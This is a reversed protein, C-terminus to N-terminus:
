VVSKRDLLDSSILAFDSSPDWPPDRSRINYQQLMYQAARSLVYAMIIVLAFPGLDMENLLAKNSLQDLTDTTQLRGEKWAKEDCPLQLQCSAELIAPPRGRGCSVIRDLLYLSWFVRRREEQDAPSFNM